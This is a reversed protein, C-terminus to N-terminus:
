LAGEFFYHASAEDYCLASQGACGHCHHESWDQVVLACTIQQLIEELFSPTKQLGSPSPTSLSKQLGFMSRRLQTTEMSPSTKPTKSSYFPQSLLSKTFHGYSERQRSQAEHRQSVVQFMLAEFENLVHARPAESFGAVINKLMSLHQSDCSAKEALEVWVQASRQTSSNALALDIYLFSAEEKSLHALASDLRQQLSLEDQISSELLMTSLASFESAFKAEQALEDSLHYMTVVDGASEYDKHLLCWCFLTSPSVSLRQAM